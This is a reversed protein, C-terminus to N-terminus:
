SETVEEKETRCGGIVEGTETRWGGIAEEM